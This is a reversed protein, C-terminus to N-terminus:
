LLRESVLPHQLSSNRQIRLHSCSVVRQSILERARARQKENGTVTFGDENMPKAVVSAGSALQIKKLVSGGMGIIYRKLHIPM